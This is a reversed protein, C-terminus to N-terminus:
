EDGLSIEISRKKRHKKPKKSTSQPTATKEEIDKTISDPITTQEKVEKSISDPTVTNKNVQEDLEKIKEELTKQDLISQDLKNAFFTLSTEIINTIKANCDMIKTKASNVQQKQVDLRSKLATMEDLQQEQNDLRPKLTAM